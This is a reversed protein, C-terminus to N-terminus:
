RTVTIRAYKEEFLSVDVLVEVGSCRAPAIRKSRRMAAIDSKMSADALARIIIDGVDDCGRKTNKVDRL